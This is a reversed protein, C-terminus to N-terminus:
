ESPYPSPPRYFLAYVVCLTAPISVAFLSVSLGIPFLQAVVMGSLLLLAIGLLSVDHRTVVVNGLTAVM